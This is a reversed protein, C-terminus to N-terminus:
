TKFFSAPVQRGILRKSWGKKKPNVGNQKMWHWSEKTYRFCRYNNQTVPVLIAAKPPTYAPGVKKKPAAGYIAIQHRERDCRYQAYAQEPTQFAIGVKLVEDRGALFSLVTKRKTASDVESELLDRLKSSAHVAEHCRDCLPILDETTVDLWNGYRLHHVEVRPVDCNNCRDGWREVAECRLQRWHDSLLYKRYALQRETM